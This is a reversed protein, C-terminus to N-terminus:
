PLVTGHWYIGADRVWATAGPALTRLEVEPAVLGPRALTEPPLAVVDGTVEDRVAIWGDRSGMRGDLASM